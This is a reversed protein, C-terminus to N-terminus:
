PGGVSRSCICVTSCRVRQGSNGGRGGDDVVIHVVIRSSKCVCRSAHRPHISPPASCAPLCVSLWISGGLCQELSLRGRAETAYSFRSIPLSLSPRSWGAAISWTDSTTATPAPQPSSPLFFVFVALAACNYQVLLWSFCVTVAADSPWQWRNRSVIWKANLRLIVNRRGIDLPPCHACVAVVWRFLQPCQANILWSTSLSNQRLRHHYEMAFAAASAIYVGPSASARIVQWCLWKRWCIM